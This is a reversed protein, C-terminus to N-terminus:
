PNMPRGPGAYGNNAAINMILKGRTHKTGLKGFLKRVGSANFEFPSNPDLVPKLHSQQVMKAIYALHRNNSLDISKVLKYRGGSRYARLPAGIKYNFYEVPGDPNDPVLSIFRGGNPNLVQEAHAWAGYGVGFDVIVDINHGRLQEYWQCKEYDLVEDAGLNKVM